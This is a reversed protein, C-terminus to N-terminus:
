RMRVCVDIQMSTLCGVTSSVLRGVPIVTPDDTRDSVVARLVRRPRATTRVAVPRGIVQDKANIVSALTVEQQIKVSFVQFM